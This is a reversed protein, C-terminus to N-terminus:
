TRQRRDTSEPCFFWHKLLLFHDTGGLGPLLIRSFSHEEQPQCATVLFASFLGPPRIVAERGRSSAQGRPFHVLYWSWCRPM